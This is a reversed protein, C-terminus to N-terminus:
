WLYQASEMNYQVQNSVYGCLSKSVVWLWLIYIHTHTYIYIYIIIIIIARDYINLVRWIINCKTRCMVVYHNVSLWCEWLIYIYIYIYVYIYTHTHTHTHTHTNNPGTLGSSPTIGDPCFVNLQSRYIKRTFLEIYFFVSKSKGLGLFNNLLLHSNIALHLCLVLNLCYFFILLYNFFCCCLILNLILTFSYFYFLIFSLFFIFFVM